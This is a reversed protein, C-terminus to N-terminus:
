PIVELWASLTTGVAVNVAILARLASVASPVALLHATFATHAYRVPATDVRSYTRTCAVDNLRSSSRSGYRFDEGCSYEHLPM